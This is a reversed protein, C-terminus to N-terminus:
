REDVCINGLDGVHREEGDVRGHRKMEPNFHRGTSMWERTFDGFEHIALGHCGPSLGSVSVDISCNREDMQVFRVLGKVDDPTATSLICVAAGLNSLLSGQGRVVAKLGAAQSQPLSSLSSFLPPSSLTLLSPSSLPTGTNKRM